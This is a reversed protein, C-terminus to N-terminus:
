QTTRPAIRFFHMKGEQKGIVDWPAGLQLRRQPGWGPPDVLQLISDQNLNLAQLKKAAEEGRGCVKGDLIWKAANQDQKYNGNEMFDTWTLTHVELRQEDMYYDVHVGTSIWKPFFDSVYYPLPQRSALFKKPLDIRIRMGPAVPLAELVPYASLASGLSQGYLIYFYYPWNGSATATWTLRHAYALVSQVDCGLCLCIALALVLFASRRSIAATPPLLRILHLLTGMANGIWVRSPAAAPVLLATM